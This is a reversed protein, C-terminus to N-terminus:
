DLRRELAEIFQTGIDLGCQADLERACTPSTVNIETVWDGIVDVGAFLVGKDVLVPGITEAIQRDRDTLPGAVGTGGAALNGRTEGAAPMRALAHSVPVGDVVLIRKDGDVIEPIYRQAMIQRDGFDTMTELVVSVNPDDAKLRFISAGGMGDLPKVIIDGHERHFDRLLANASTVLTPPCCEPFWATFMKENIDRLAAPDNVVLTGLDQARQLFYTTFVYNMDFPPDLRMLICDLQQLPMSSAPALDFWHEKNDFVTVPQVTAAPIGDRMSLDQRQFYFLEWGKKQAALMMALSTDKEVKINEIPDMLVGIKRTV